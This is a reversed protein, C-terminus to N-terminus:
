WWPSLTLLDARKDGAVNRVDDFRELCQVVAQERLRWRTVYIEESWASDTSSGSHRFCILCVREPHFQIPAVQEADLDVVMTTPRTVHRGRPTRLEICSTSALSSATALELVGADTYAPARHAMRDIKREGLRPSSATLTSNRLFRDPSQLLDVGIRGIRGVISAASSAYGVDDVNGSSPLSGSIHARAM